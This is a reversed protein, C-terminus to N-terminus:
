FGVLQRLDPQWVVRVLLSCIRGTVLTIESAQGWIPTRVISVGYLQIYNFNWRKQQGNFRKRWGFIAGHDAIVSSLKEFILIWGNEWCFSAVLLVGGRREQVGGFNTGAERKSGSCTFCIALHDSCLGRQFLRRLISSSIIHRVEILFGCAESSQSNGDTLHHLKWNRLNSQIRRKFVFM